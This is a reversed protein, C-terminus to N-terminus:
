QKSGIVREMVVWREPYSGGGSAAVVRWGEKALQNVRGIGTHSVFVEVYEYHPM